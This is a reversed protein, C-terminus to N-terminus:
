LGTESKSTVQLFKGPRDPDPVFWTKNGNADRHLRAGAVPPEEHLAPMLGARQMEDLANGFAKAVLELDADTHATTIFGPRGEWIHVGHYRMLAFFVGPYPLDRPLDFMFWSSFHKVRVPAHVSAAISNLREVFASARKNLTRQLEPGTRQLHELVAQVSALVLPHRVFTGAFFTVGAEPGSDDGFQWSGGDLADLYRADGAIIGVPLGGGLVKGYTAMNAKVGFVAQMGAPHVRFGTVVEDFVLAIDADLTLKRLKQVFEKPQLDPRRSQVPEVLVAALEGAHAEITDLASQEGYELVLVNEAMEQPIGPAIPRGSPDAKSGRRVLVEDFIGHYAGSFMAIKNRGSVTRATRIAATVAESGTNCFAAREMGVMSCIAKAVSGAIPSQPGIEVGRELQAKLADRVFDPNHGFIISGFGNVLDVYQNGDIDWLSSGASRETAIPYIMEKLDPQFGAVTRPDAFHVRNAQALEKSKRTRSNYRAIFSDLARKQDIDVVRLKSTRSPPKYPGFETVQRGQATDESKRDGVPPANVKVGASVAPAAAPVVQVRAGGQLFYQQLLDQQRAMLQMQQSLLASFSGSDQFAINTEVASYIPAAAAPAAMPEGATAQSTQKASGQLSQIVEPALTLIRQSLASITSLEDLLDRLAIKVGFKRTLAGV